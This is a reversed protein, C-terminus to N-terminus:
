FHAQAKITSNPKQLQVAVQQHFNIMAHKGWACVCVRVVNM